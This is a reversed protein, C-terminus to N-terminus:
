EKGERTAAEPELLPVGQETGVAMTRKPAGDVTQSIRGSEERAQGTEMPMRKPKSSVTYSGMDEAVEVDFGTGHLISVTQANTLKIQADRLEDRSEVKGFRLIWDTIGFTPLLENNFPDEIDKIYGKIVRNQVDIEMRPNQDRYEGATSTFVPTVGFVGLVKEVYLKYYEISQMKELPIDQPIFQPPKGQEVGIFITAIELSRINQGTQVDQRDKQRLEEDITDKM